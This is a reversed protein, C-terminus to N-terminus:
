TAGGQGGSLRRRRRVSLVIGMASDTKIRSGRVVALMFLAGLVGAATAGLLIPLPHKSGTLLFALGVGPLAAHALADGLLSQRRLLAFSGVLGSVAGLLTAGLLVNRLTSTWELEM